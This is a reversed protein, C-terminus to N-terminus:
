PTGDIRHLRASPNRPESQTSLFNLLDRKLIAWRKGTKFSPGFDGRALRKRATRNSIRFVAALDEALVIEGLYLKRGAELLLRARDPIETHKM